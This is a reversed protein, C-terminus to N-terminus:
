KRKEARQNVQTTAEAAPPAGPVQTTDGITAAPSTETYTKDADATRVRQELVAGQALAREADEHSLEMETGPPVLKGGVHAAFRLKYSGALSDAM